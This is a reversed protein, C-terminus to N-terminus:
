EDEDIIMVGSSGILEYDTLSQNSKFGNKGHFTGNKNKIRTYKDSYIKEKDEDWFLEESDLREGTKYNQAVVNGIAHWLKKEHFYIAYNATIESEVNLSDDFFIVRLGKPFESYPEEANNYQKLEKAILKVQVKASDSYIVEIDEGTLDPYDSSTNLLTVREIDNECGGAFLASLFILVSLLQRNM